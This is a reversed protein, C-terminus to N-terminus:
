GHRDRLRAYQYQLARNSWVSLFSGLMIAYVQHRAIKLRVAPDLLRRPGPDRRRDAPALCVGPAAAM